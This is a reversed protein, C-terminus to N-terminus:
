WKSEGAKFFCHRMKAFRPAPDADVACLARDRFQSLIEAIAPIDSTSLAMITQLQPTWRWNGITHNQQGRTKGSCRTRCEARTQTRLSQPDINISRSQFSYGLQAMSKEPQAQPSTALESIKVSAQITLPRCM